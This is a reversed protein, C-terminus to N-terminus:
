YKKWLGTKIFRNCIRVFHALYKKYLKANQSGGFEFFLNVITNVDEKLICQYDKESISYETRFNLLLKDLDERSLINKDMLIQLFTYNDQNQIGLLDDLQQNTLFGNEVAIEGFKKDVMSQMKSIIKVDKEKMYGTEIALAGVKVHVKQKESLIDELQSNSLINQKILYNGFIYTFM